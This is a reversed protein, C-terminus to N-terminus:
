EKKEEKKNQRLMQMQRVVLMALWTVSEKVSKHLKLIGKAKEETMPFKLTPETPVPTALGVPQVGAQQMDSTVELKDGNVEQVGAEKVNQPMEVSPINEKVFEGPKFTAIPASEKGLFSSSIPQVPIAAVAPQGPPQTQVNNVSQQASTAPPMVQQGPLVQQVQNSTSQQATDDM